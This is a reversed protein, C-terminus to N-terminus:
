AIQLTSTSNDLWNDFCYWPFTLFAPVRLCRQEFSRFLEVQIVETNLSRNTQFEYSKYMFPIAIQSIFLYLQNVPAKPPAALM